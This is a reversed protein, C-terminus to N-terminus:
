NSHIKQRIQEQFTISSADETDEVFCEKLKFVEKRRTKNKKGRHFM